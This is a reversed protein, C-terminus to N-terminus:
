AVAAFLCEEPTQGGDSPLSRDSTKASKYANTHVIGWGGSYAEGDQEEFDTWCAAACLPTAKMEIKHGLAFTLDALTHLTMNRSGSLLNTVHSKSTGIDAALHSKSVGQDEMLRSILESADFALAEREYIRRRKPDSIFQQFHDNKQM